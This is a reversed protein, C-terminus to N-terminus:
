PRPLFTLLFMQARRHPAFAVSMRVTLLREGDTVAIGASDTWDCPSARTDRHKQGARITVQTAPAQGMGSSVVNGLIVENVDNLPVAARKLAEKVVHTGLQVGSLSSLSGQFAGIPTRATSLIM